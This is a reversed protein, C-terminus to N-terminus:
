WIWYLNEVRAQGNKLLTPRAQIRKLFVRDVVILEVGNWLGGTNHDQGHEMDWSGPRADHHNFIGKILHKQHPWAKADEKPSEVWVKLDNQTQCVKTADLEFAQFYGEHSGLMRGNMEAKLFYDAGKFRIFAAQGESLAPGKFNTEYLAEGAFDEGQLYWNSPVQVLRSKPKKVPISRAEITSEALKTFEWKGDLSITRSVQIGKLRSITKAASERMGVM